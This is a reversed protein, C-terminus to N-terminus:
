EDKQKTKRFFFEKTPFNMKGTNHPKNKNNEQITKLSFHTQIHADTTAQTTKLSFNQMSNSSGTGRIAL